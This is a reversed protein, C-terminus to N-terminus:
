ADAGTMLFLGAQRHGTLGVRCVTSSCARHFSKGFKAYQSLEGLAAVATHKSMVSIYGDETLSSLHQSLDAHGEAVQDEAPQGSRRGLAWKAYGRDATWRRELQRILRDLLPVALSHKGRRTGYVLRM